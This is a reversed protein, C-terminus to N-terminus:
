CQKNCFAPLDFDSDKVDQYKFSSIEKQKINLVGSTREETDIIYGVYKGLSPPKYDVFNWLSDIKTVIPGFPITTHDQLYYFGEKSSLSGKHCERSFEYAGERRCSCMDTTGNFWSYRKYDRGDKLILNCLTMKKGYYVATVDIREKGQAERVMAFTRKYEDPVGDQTIQTTKIYSINDQLCITEAYCVVIISLLLIITKM